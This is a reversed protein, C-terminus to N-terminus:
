QDDGSGEDFCPEATCLLPHDHQRAYDVVQEAKSEAVDRIYVGAIGRGKHHVSLMVQEAQTETCQFFKRLVEVVFEMTTYDDNHLVVQFRRARRVEADSALALDGEPTPANAPHESAM